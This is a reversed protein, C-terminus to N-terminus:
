LRLGPEQGLQAARLTRRGPLPGDRHVGLAQRLVRGAAQHHEPPGPEEPHRDRHAAQAPLLLHYPGREDGKRRARRGHHPAHSPVRLRLQGQGAEVHRAGRVHGLLQRRYFKGACLEPLNHVSPSRASGRLGAKLAPQQEDEVSDHDGDRPLVRM